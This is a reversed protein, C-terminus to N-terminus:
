RVQLFVRSLYNVACGVLSFLWFCEKKNNVMTTQFYTGITDGGLENNIAYGFQYSVVKWHGIEDSSFLAIWLLFQQRFPIILLLWSSHIMTVFHQYPIDYLVLPNYRNTYNSSVIFGNVAEHTPSDILSSIIPWISFISDVYIQGASKGYSAAMLCLIIIIIKWNLSWKFDFDIHLVM